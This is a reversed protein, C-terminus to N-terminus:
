FDRQENIVTDMAELTTALIYLGLLALSLVMWGVIKM